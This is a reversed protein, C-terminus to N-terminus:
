RPMPEPTMVKGALRGSGDNLLRNAGAFDGHGLLASAEDIRARASSQLAPALNTSTLQRRQRELKRAVFPADVVVEGLRREASTIAREAERPDAARLRGRAWDILAELDADDGPALGIEEARHETAAIRRELDARAPEPAAPPVFPSPPAVVPAEGASAVFGDYFGPGYAVEFLHRHFSEEIAGRAAMPRSHFLAATLDITGPRELRMRAETTETRAFYHDSPVLGVILPREGSKNFDAYRVGRGDELHFHGTMEAPFRVFNVFGATALDILPRSRDLAPPQMFVDLRARPDDIKLNAAAVYARVESYEIRGDGNVDAAGALASRVQHSFIGGGYVSWEHTAEARSTSLVVGTTPYRALEEEAVYRRVAEGAVPGRDDAGRRAVLLYANCADIIVHNFAAKSPAIVQRFLDSRRLPADVLSIYGEGDPTVEGHGVVIFYLVPDFGAARAAEMERNYEALRALVAPLTPAEAIPALKRFVRQSEEDLVTFLSIRAAGPALLEYWRAGDDDAFRLPAVGPTLSANNAIVVVFRKEPARAQAAGGLLLVLLSLLRAPRISIFRM